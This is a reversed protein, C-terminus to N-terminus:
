VLEPQGADYNEWLVYKLTFTKGPNFKDDQEMETVIRKENFMRIKGNHEVAVYGGKWYKSPIGVYRDHNALGIKYGSFTTKAHYMM